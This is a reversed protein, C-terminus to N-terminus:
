ISNRKRTALTRGVWALWAVMALGFSTAVDKFEQDKIPQSLTVNSDTAEIKRLEDRVEQLEQIQEAYTVNSRGKPPIMEGITELRGAIPLDSVGVKALAIEEKADNPHSPNTTEYTFTADGITIKQQNRTAALDQMARDTKAISWSIGPHAAHKPFQEVDNIEGVGKACSYLSATATFVAIADIARIPTFFKGEQKAMYKLTTVRGCSLGFTLAIPCKRNKSEIPNKVRSEIQKTYLPM